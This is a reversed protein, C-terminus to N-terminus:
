VCKQKEQAKNIAKRKIAIANNNTSYVYIYTSKSLFITITFNGIILFVYDCLMKECIIEGLFLM